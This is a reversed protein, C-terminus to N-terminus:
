ETFRGDFDVPVPAKGPEILGKSLCTNYDDEGFGPACHVIGTGTDSTVFDAGLVSFCNREKMSEFYNFLPVYRKGELDKGSIKELVKHKKINATKLTYQLRCEAM